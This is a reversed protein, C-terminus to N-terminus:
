LQRLRRVLADFQQLHDFQQSFGPPDLNHGVQDFHDAPWLPELFEGWRASSVPVLGDNQDDTGSVASQYAHAVLLPFCTPRLGGRGAGAVSFYRIGDVNPHEDQFAKMSETTLEVFAAVSVGIALLSQEVLNWQVRRLDGPSPRETGLLLDAVPSGRHPTSITTLSRIKDQLGKLNKSILCRSDVGGMSHAIIDVPQGQEFPGGAFAAIIAEALQDARNRYSATVPVDPFIANVGANQYKDPLGRFYEFDIFTQPILVGSAFVINM